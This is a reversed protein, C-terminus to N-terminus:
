TPARFDARLIIATQDGLDDFPGVAALEDGDYFLAAGGVNSQPARKGKRSPFTQAGAASVWAVHCGLEASRRRALERIFCYSDEVHENGLMEVMSPVLALHVDAEALKAFEADSAVDHCVAIATNRGKFPFIDIDDGPRLYWGMRDREEKTLHLKDQIQIEGTPACLHARNTIGRDGHAPWTGPLIAMGLDHAIEQIPGAAGDLVGALWAPEDREQLDEGAFDLCQMAAYEPLILLDCDQCDLAIRRVRSIWQAASIVPLSQNTIALAIKVNRDKQQTM